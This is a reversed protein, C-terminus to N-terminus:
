GHGCPGDHMLNSGPWWIPAPWEAECAREALDAQRAAVDRFRQQEEIDADLDALQEEDADHQPGDGGEPLQAVGDWVPRVKDWGVQDAADGHEPHEM